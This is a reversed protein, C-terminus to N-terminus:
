NRKMDERLIVSTDDKALPTAAPLVYKTTSEAVPFDDQGFVLHENAMTIVDGNSLSMKEIPNGNVYTGGTSGLDVVEFEGDRYRLEAHKRSVKTNYIVLDNDSARGISIVPQEFSFVSSTAVVLLAARPTSEKSEM